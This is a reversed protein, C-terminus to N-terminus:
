VDIKGNQILREKITEFSIRPEDMRKYATLIDEIDEFYDGYDKAPIIMAKKHGNEDVIFEIGNM